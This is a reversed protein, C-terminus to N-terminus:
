ISQLIKNIMQFLSKSIFDRDLCTDFVNDPEIKSVELKNVEKEEPTMDSSHKGITTLEKFVDHMKSNNVEMVVDDVIASIPTQMVDNLIREPKVTDIGNNYNMFHCKYLYLFLKAFPEQSRSIDNITNNYFAIIENLATIDNENPKFPKNQSFRWSIRNISKEIDAM